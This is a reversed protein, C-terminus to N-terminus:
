PAINPTYSYQVDQALEVEDTYLTMPPTPLQRRHLTPSPSNFYGYALASSMTVIVFGYSLVKRFM